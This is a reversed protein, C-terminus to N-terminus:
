GKTGTTVQVTIEAGEQIPHDEPVRVNSVYLGLDGDPLALATKARLSKVAEGVTSVGWTDTNGSIQNNVGCKIVFNM